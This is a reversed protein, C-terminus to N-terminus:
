SEISIQCVNPINGDKWFKIEQMKATEKAGYLGTELVTAHLREHQYCHRIGHLAIKM